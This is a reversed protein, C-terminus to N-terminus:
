QTIIEYLKDNVITEMATWAPHTDVRSKVLDHLEQFRDQSEFQSSYYTVGGASADPKKINDIQDINLMPYFTLAVLGGETNSRFTSWVYQEDYCFVIFNDSVKRAKIKGPHQYLMTRLAATLNEKSVNDM